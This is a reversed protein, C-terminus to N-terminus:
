LTALVVSRACAPPVSRVFKTDQWDIARTLSRLEHGHDEIHPTVMHLVMRTDLARQITAKQMALAITYGHSKGGVGMWAADALIPGPAVALNNGIERTCLTMSASCFLISMLTSRRLGSIRSSSTRLSAPAKKEGFIPMSPLM